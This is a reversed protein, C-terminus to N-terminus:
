VCLVLQFNLLNAFNLLHATQSRGGRLYHLFKKINENNFCRLTITVMKTKIKPAKFNLNIIQGDRDSLM